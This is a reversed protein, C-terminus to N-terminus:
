VGWTMTVEVTCVPTGDVTGTIEVERYDATVGHAGGQALVEESYAAVVPAYWPALAVPIGRITSVVANSGRSVSEVDGFDFYQGLIKPVRKALMASPALRLMMRYVGGRDQNAQFRTRSMAVEQFSQGMLGSGVATSMVLPFVDFRQTALFTQDFFTAFRADPFAAKVAAMGGPVNADMFEVHGKYAVGKIRFPSTGPEFPLGLILRIIEERDKM